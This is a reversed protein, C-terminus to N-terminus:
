GGAGPVEREVAEFRSRLDEAVIGALRVALATADGRIAGRAELDEYADMVAAYVNGMIGAEVVRREEPTLVTRPADGM